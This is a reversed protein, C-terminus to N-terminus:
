GEKIYQYLKDLDSESFRFGMLEIPWRRSMTPKFLRYAEEINISNGEVLPTGQLYGEVFVRIKGEIVTPVFAEMAAAKLENMKPSLEAAIYKEAGRRIQEM